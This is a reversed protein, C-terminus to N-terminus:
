HDAENSAEIAEVRRRVKAMAVDLAEVPDVECAWAMKLTAFLLDGVEERVKEKSGRKEPSLHRGHLSRLEGLLEGHEETIQCSQNKQTARSGPADDPWARKALAVIQDMIWPLQKGRALKTGENSAAQLATTITKAMLEADRNNLAGGYALVIEEAQERPTM